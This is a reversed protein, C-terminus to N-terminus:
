KGGMLKWASQIGAQKNIASQTYEPAPLSQSARQVFDQIQKARLQNAIGGLAGSAATEAQLVGKMAAPTSALAGLGSGVAFGTSAAGPIGTLLGGIYGVSGGVGGGRLVKVGGGGGVPERAPRGFYRWTSAIDTLNGLNANYEKDFNKIVNKLNPRRFTEPNNITKFATDKDKFLPYLYESYEM